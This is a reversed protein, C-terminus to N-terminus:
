IRAGFRIWAGITALLLAAALLAVTDAYPVQEKETTLTKALASFIQSLEAGTFAEYSAGSTVTSVVRLPEPAAPVDITRDDVTIVGQPTGFAVTYIPVESIRAAEAGDADPRGVNTSGDSMLVVAGSRRQVFEGPSNQNEVWGRTELLSIALFIAEGIATGDQPQIKGIAEILVDRDTTPTVLVSASSAFTVVGIRAGKPASRVFNLAADRAAEIRTPAVDTALMSRSVDLALIVTNSSRRVQELRMPGAAAIIVLVASAFMGLLTSRRRWLRQPRTRLESLLGADSFKVADRNRRTAALLTTGALVIPIALLLLRWPHVFSM